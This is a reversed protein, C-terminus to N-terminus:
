LMVEAIFVVTFYKQAERILMILIIDTAFNSLHFNDYILIKAVSTIKIIDNQSVYFYKVVTNIGWFYRLLSSFPPM